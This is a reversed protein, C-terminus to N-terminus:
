IEKSKPKPKPKKIEIVSDEIGDLSNTEFSQGAYYWQDNANVVNKPKVVVIM